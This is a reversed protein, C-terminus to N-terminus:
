KIEFTTLYEEKNLVVRVTWKGKIRGKIYRYDYISGHGSPIIMLRERSINNSPDIWQFVVNEEMMTRNKEFRCIISNEDELIICDVRPEFDEEYISMDEESFISSFSLVLFFLVRFM